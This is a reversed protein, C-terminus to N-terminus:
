EDGAEPDLSDFYRQVKEGHTLRREGADPGAVPPRAHYECPLTRGCEIPEGMGNNVIVDCREEAPEASTASREVAALAARADLFRQAKVELAHGSQWSLVAKALDVAADLAARLGTASREVSADAAEAEVLRLGSQALAETIADPTVTYDYGRFLATALRAATVPQRPKNRPFVGGGPIRTDMVEGKLYGIVPTMAPGCCVCLTDVNEREGAM